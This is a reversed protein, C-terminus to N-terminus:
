LFISLAGTHQELACVAIFKVSSLSGGSIGHTWQFAKPPVLWVVTAACLFEEKPASNEKSHLPFLASLDHMQLDKGVSVRSLKAATQQISLGWTSHIWTNWVSLTTCSLSLWRRGRGPPVWKHRTDACPRTTDKSFEWKIKGRMIPIAPLSILSESSNSISM